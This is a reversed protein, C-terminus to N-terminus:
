LVGGACFRSLPLKEVERVPLYTQVQAAFAAATLMEGLAELLRSAPYSQWDQAAVRAEANPIPESGVLAACTEDCAIALLYADEPTLELTITRRAIEHLRM